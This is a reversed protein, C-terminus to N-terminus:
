AALTAAYTLKEFLIAQLNAIEPNALSRPIQTNLDAILNLTAPYGQMIYIQNAMRLAETPDHTIFLVTQQTLLRSALEHLKFRTIADVASFPEDMLVIPKNEMLTRVLAVRQRMGGSLQHPYCNIVHSLGVIDLLSKAQALATKIKKEGRLKLGLTANGLVTMWPLLLDTQGMYAVQTSVTAHNDSTVMGEKINPELGAIMKLLSSKGVGSPGLLCVWKGAPLHLNLNSFILKEKYAFSAQHITINPINM